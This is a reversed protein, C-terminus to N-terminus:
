NQLPPGRALKAILIRRELGREDSRIQFAAYAPEPAKLDHLTPLTVVGAISVLWCSICLHKDHPSQDGDDPIKENREIERFDLLHQHEHHTLHDQHATWTVDAVKVPADLLHVHGFTFVFQLALAMLCLATLIRNQRLKHM